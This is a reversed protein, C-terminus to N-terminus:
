KMLIMKKSDVETGARLRYFYIGSAVSRGDGDRGDWVVSHAGAEIEGDLLCRVHQGLINFVDLSAKGAIPVTFAITTTPNFPNPHNQNLAFTYPIAVTKSMAEAVPQAPSPTAGYWYRGMDNRSGDPDNYRIRPDGTNICPSGAALTYDLNFLPDASISGAGPNASQYDPNNDYVDNYNLETWIGYVGYEWSGVIINNKATGMGTITCIGRANDYMTNNVIEADGTYLVICSIGGNATFLNRTILPRSYDTRIVSKNNGPVNRINYTFQNNRILPRAGGGIMFTYYDGGQTIRFGSFETREDEGTVIRVIPTTSVTPRLITVYPGGTSMLKCSKGGFDFNGYYNGPYVLINDGNAVANLAGQITSIQGPVYIAHLGGMDNRTGDLDNYWAGPDGADICASTSDLFFNLTTRNLYLPDVSLSHTGPNASQYNPNNNYVDNYDLTTWTGYIGYQWSNTVINNEAIGQGSITLFGRANDDFTNNIIRATGSWIGICSIGGNRCFVNKTILPNSSTTKIVAKNNGAVGRINYDFVHNTIVPIAGGGILFPYCDGGATFTFGSFQTGVGEGTTMTVTSLLPNAPKLITMAPGYQGNVIIRKGGFNINEVYTGPKVQVTDLDTAMAIGKAITRYPSTYTGSGTTDDGYTGDVWIMEAAPPTYIVQLSPDGLWLYMRANDLGYSGFQAIMRVAGVNSANGIANTGEDFIAAFIQEDYTSNPTTWSPRTAGLYACAADNALTFGEALCAGGTWQIQGSSCAIAFVVPTKDGNTLARADLTDYNEGLASWQQWIATGGHGRYNVVRQGANIAASVDANTGGQAGYVTTFYPYLVSYTGSATQDANRIREKCEQYTLTSHAVLLAKTRWDGAPPNAEYTIMKLLLNDVQADTMASIRGVAIDPIDDSGALLSYYFDSFIAGYSYTYGEYGPLESPDGVLLVYKIHYNQYESRIYNKISLTDAGISSLSTVKTSLGRANKWKTFPLMNDVFRSVPIILYDYDTLIEDLQDNAEISEPEPLIGLKDYNIVTQRYLPIYERSATKPEFPLANVTNMGDFTLRVTMRTIVRVQGTAPNFRIPYISLNVVRLDRWIQPDGVEATQAPYWRNAAYTERDIDFGKPVQGEILPTQFPYILYGRLSTEEVETVEVSVGAKAPIAVMERIAPLQPKGIDLTTFHRPLTLKQYEKGEALTEELSFGSLSVTLVTASADSQVVTVIPAEPTANHGAIGIWTDGATVIAALLLLALAPIIHYFGKRM